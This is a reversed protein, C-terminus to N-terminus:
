GSKIEAKMKYQKLFTHKSFCYYEVRGNACFCTPYYTQMLKPKFLSFYIGALCLTLVSKYKKDM